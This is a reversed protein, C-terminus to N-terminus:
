KIRNIYDVVTKYKYLHALDLPTKKQKDKITLLDLFAKDGVAKHITEVIGKNV